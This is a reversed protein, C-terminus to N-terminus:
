TKNNRTTTYLIKNIVNGPNIILVCHTHKIETANLIITYLRASLIHQSYVADFQSSQIYPFWNTYHLTDNMTITVHTAKRDFAYGIGCSAYEFGFCTSGQSKYRPRRHMWIQVFSPRHTYHIATVHTQNANRRCAIYDYAYIRNMIRMYKQNHLQIVLKDRNSQPM